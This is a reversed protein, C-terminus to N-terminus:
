LTELNNEKKFDEVLKRIKEGYYAEKMQERFHTTFTLISECGKCCIVDIIGHEVKISGSSFEKSPCYPCKPTM